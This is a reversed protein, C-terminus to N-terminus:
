RRLRELTSRVDEASLAPMEAEAAFVPGDGRDVLRMAVPVPEIEIRGDRVNVAVSGGQGLGLEERISKPIVVGGAGDM